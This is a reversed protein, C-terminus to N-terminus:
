WYWVTKVVTVKQEIKFDTTDTRWSPEQGEINHQSSQTRQRDM